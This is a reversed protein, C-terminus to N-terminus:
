AAEKERARGLTAIMDEHLEFWTNHYSPGTAATLVAGNGSLFDDMLADLRERYRRLHPAYSAADDLVSAIEDHVDAALEILSLEEGREQWATALAKFRVNVPLFREDYVAALLPANAGVRDRLSTKDRELGAATLTFWGGRGTALNADVLGALVAEAGEVGSIREVDEPKALGKVRLAHLAAIQREEIDTGGPHEV